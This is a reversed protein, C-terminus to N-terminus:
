MKPLLSTRLLAKPNENLVQDTPVLVAVVNAAPEFGELLDEYDGLGEGMPFGEIDRLDVDTAAQAMMLAIAAGQRVGHEIAARILARASLLREERHGAPARIFNALVDAAGHLSEVESAAKSV